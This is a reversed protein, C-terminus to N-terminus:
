PAPETKGEFRELFHTDFRGARFDPDALVRLHFPATTRIGDVQLERLARQMRRIAATRDEAWVILKGVLSDYFPPILAGPCLYTDFRVGPGGPMTLGEIEGPSPEFGRDPDSANIRCEMAWGALRVNEQRLRLPEGAALRFQEQVLDVGTVMETVPHEVQIRSNVEMFYFNREQDVLFEVTGANVYGVER